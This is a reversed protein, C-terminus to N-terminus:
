PERGAVCCCASMWSAMARETSTGLSLLMTVEATGKTGCSGLLQGLRQAISNPQTTCDEYYHGEITLPVYPCPVWM